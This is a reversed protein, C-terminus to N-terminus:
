SQRQSSKLLLVLDKVMERPRRRKAALMGMVFTGHICASSSLSQCAASSGDDIEQISQGLFAPHELWVPGDITGVVIDPSGATREMLPLLGVLEVPNM